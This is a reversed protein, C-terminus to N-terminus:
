RAGMPNYRAQSAVPMPQRMNDAQRNLIATQSNYLDSRANLEKIQAPTLPNMAGSILSGAASVLGYSLMPNDKAFGMIKSWISADPDLTHTSQGITVPSTPNNGTNFIYKDTPLGAGTTPKQATVDPATGPKAASPTAEAVQTNGYGLQGAPSETAPDGGGQQILPIRDESSATALSDSGTIPNPTGEVTPANGAISDIVNTAPTAQTAAAGEGAASGATNVLGEAAQAADPAITGATGAAAQTAAVQGGMEGMSGMGTGTAGAAISAADSGFMGASAALGGIGGVAGLALGAYQLEKVGTLAGVAGVTAGVAAMITFVTAGEAVVSGIAIAAPIIAAVPM